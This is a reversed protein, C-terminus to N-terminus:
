WGRIAFVVVEPTMEKEKQASLVTPFLPLSDMKTVPIWVM